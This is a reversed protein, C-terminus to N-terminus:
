SPRPKSELSPISIFRRETTIADVHLHYRVTDGQMRQRAVGMEAFGKGLSM